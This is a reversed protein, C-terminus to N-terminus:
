LDPLLQIAVPFVIVLFILTPVPELEVFVGVGVDVRVADGVTVLVGIVELPVWVGVGVGVWVCSGPVEVGM